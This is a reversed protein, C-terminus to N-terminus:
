KIKIYTIGCLDVYNLAIKYGRRVLDRVFKDCDRKLFFRQRDNKWNVIYM